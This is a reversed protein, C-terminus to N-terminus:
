YVTASRVAHIRTRQGAREGEILLVPCPARRSLYGAANGLLLGRLPGRQRAAVILDVRAERAWACLAGPGDFVIPQADDVGLRILEERLWARACEHLEALDPVWMPCSMVVAIWPDVHVASLRAVGGAQLRRTEQVARRCGASGDVVCAIHRYRTGERPLDAM